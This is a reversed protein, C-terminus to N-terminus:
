EKLWALAEEENDFFGATQHILSLAIRVFMRAVPTVGIVSIKDFKVINSLEKIARRAGKDLMGGTPNQTLDAFLLNREKEKFIDALAPMLQRVDDGILTDFTRIRVVGQDELYKIEYNM